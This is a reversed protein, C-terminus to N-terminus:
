FIFPFVGDPTVVTLFVPLPTVQEKYGAKFKEVTAMDTASLGNPGKPHSHWEGIYGLQNGTKENIADVEESLGETGRFFCVENAQSDHPANILDLIHITKTKYNCAGIFVGGTELPSAQLMQATLSEIIGSAFRVEWSPDNVAHYVRLKNFTMISSDIHFVEEDKLKMAYVLGNSAAGATLKPRIIKTMVSAHIAVEEDSLITTESNCGVGVTINESSETATFEAKLWKSIEDSDKAAAYLLMQLDDIRPNRDTGEALVIGLKGFDSIYAKIVPVKDQLMVLFQSFAPSATFDLVMKWPIKTDLVRILAEASVAYGKIQTEAQYFIEEIEEKLAVAKNKNVYKVSLPHRVFNHPMLHDNDALWMKTNGSKALHLVIRSGLAGCGAVLSIESTNIPFGSIESAKALTLPQKHQKFKVVTDDAILGNVIKEESLRVHFNVFELDSSFGIINKSRKLAVIIPVSKYPTFKSSSILDQEFAQIAIGHKECFAKFSAWDKPLDVDYSDDDTPSDSWLIYGFYLFRKEAEGDEKIAHQFAIKLKEAFTSAEVEEIYRWTLAGKEPSTREFMLKAFNSDPLYSKRSKCISNFVDYDYTLGGNYGELRLPEFQDGDKNLEGTAADRFWNKARIILDSILKGSYWEDFNGRVLCLQAPRGDQAIYLHGLISFPFNLRDPHIKPGHHPYKEVDIVLIVPENAIIRNDEVFQPLSVELFIPIALEGTPWDKFELQQDSFIEGLVKLSSLLAQNIIEKSYAPLNTSFLEQAM